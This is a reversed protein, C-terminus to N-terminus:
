LYNLPRITLSTILILIASLIPNTKETVIRDILNDRNKESPNSTTM